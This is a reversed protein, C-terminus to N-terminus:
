GYRKEGTVTDSSWAELRNLFRHLVLIFIQMIIRCRKCCKKAIDSDQTAAGFKPKADAM